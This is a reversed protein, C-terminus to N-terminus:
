CFSPLLLVGVFAHNPIFNPLIKVNEIVNPFYPPVSLNFNPIIDEAYIQNGFNAVNCNIISVNDVTM